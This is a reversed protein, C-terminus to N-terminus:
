PHWRCLALSVHLVESGPLFSTLHCPLFSTCRALGKVYKQTLDKEKGYGQLAHVNAAELLIGAFDDVYILCGKNLFRFDFAGFGFHELWQM